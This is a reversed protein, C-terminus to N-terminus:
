LAELLLPVPPFRKSIGVDLERSFVDYLCEEDRCVLLSFFSYTLFTRVATISKTSESSSTCECTSLSSCRASSVPADFVTRLAMVEGVVESDFYAANKAARPHGFSYATLQKTRVYAKKIM